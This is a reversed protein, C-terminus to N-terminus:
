RCHVVVPGKNDSKTRQTRIVKLFNYLKEKDPCKKDPWCKFNFLRVRHTKDAEIVLYRIDYDRHEIVKVLRVTLAGYVRKENPKQPWYIDCPKPYQGNGKESMNALM